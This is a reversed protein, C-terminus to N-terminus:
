KVINETSMEPADFLLMANILKFSQFHIVEDAKIEIERIVHEDLLSQRMTGALLFTSPTFWENGRKLAINSYSTDTIRNNKVILVDDCVGRQTFLNQLETRDCFKHRYDISDDYVVKLSIISKATYPTFEAQNSQHDYKLRCKYLGTGPKPVKKLLEELNIEDTSGLVDKLALRMRREHYVLNNFRGDKLRITELLPFM